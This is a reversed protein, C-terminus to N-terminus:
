VPKGREREHGREDHRAIFIRQARGPGDAHVDRGGPDIAVRGVLDDGGAPSV